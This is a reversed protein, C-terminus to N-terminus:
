NSLSRFLGDVDDSGGRSSGRNGDSWDPDSTDEDDRELDAIRDHVHGARSDLDHIGLEDALETLMALEESITEPSDDSESLRDLESEVLEEFEDALDSLEPLELVSDGFKEEDEELIEKLAKLSAFDQPENLSAGFWDVAKDIVPRVFEVPLDLRDLCYVLTLAAEKAEAGPRPWRSILARAMEDLQNHTISVELDVSIELLVVAKEELSLGSVQGALFLEMLKEITVAGQAVM